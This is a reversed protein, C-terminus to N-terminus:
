PVVTTLATMLRAAAAFLAATLPEATLRETPGQGFQLGAPTLMSLRTAGASPPAPLEGDWPGIHTVIQEGAALVADIDADLRDDPREWVVSRGSPNYYRARHDRYAAFLDLGEPMGVEVVVGLVQSAVDPDPHVGLARLQSWAAARPLSEADAATAIARLTEIGADPNAPLEGLLLERIGAWDNRPQSRRSRWVM